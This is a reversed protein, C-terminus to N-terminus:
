LMITFGTGTAVAVGAACVIQEFVVVFMANLEVTVLVVNLQVTVLLPLIVPTDFPLPLVMACIGTFLLVTACVTVYVMIGTKEFLPTDHGPVGIVATIVTLGKGETVLVGKLWAIQEPPVVCATFRVDETIPVVYAQVAEAVKPVVPKVGKPVPSIGASVSVLVVDDLPVTVYTIVGM